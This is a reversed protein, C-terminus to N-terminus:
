HTSRNVSLIIIPYTLYSNTQHKYLREFTKDYKYFLMFLVETISFTLRM